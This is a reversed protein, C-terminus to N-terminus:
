YDQITDHYRSDPRREPPVDSQGIAKELAPLLDVALNADDPLRLLRAAERLISLAQEQTM